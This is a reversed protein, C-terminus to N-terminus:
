MHIHRLVASSLISEFKVECLLGYCKWIVQNRLEAIESEKELNKRSEDVNGSSLENRLKDLHRVEDLSELFKKYTDTDHMLKGLEEISKDKLSAVVTSSGQLSTQPQFGTSAPM